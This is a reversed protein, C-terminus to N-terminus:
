TAFAPGGPEGAWRRVVSLLHEVHVPKLLLETFDAEKVRRGRAGSGWGSIGIIPLRVFLPHNRIRRCLHVGDIDPLGVHMVLAAPHFRRVSELVSAGTEGPVVKYGSRELMTVYIERADAHDDVVAVLPHSM